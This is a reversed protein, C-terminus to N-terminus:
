GFVIVKIASTTEGYEDATQSIEGYTCICCFALGGNLIVSHVNFGKPEMEDLHENVKKHDRLM